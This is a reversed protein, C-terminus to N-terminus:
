GAIIKTSSILNVFCDISIVLIFICVVLRDMKSDKTNYSVKGFAVGLLLVFFWGFLFANSIGVAYYIM